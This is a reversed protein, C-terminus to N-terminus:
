YMKCILIGEQQFYEILVLVTDINQQKWREGSGNNVSVTTENKLNIHSTRLSEGNVAVKM